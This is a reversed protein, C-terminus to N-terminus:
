VISDIGLSSCDAKIVAQLIAAFVCLVDHVKATSSNHEKSIFALATGALESLTIILVEGAGRVIM